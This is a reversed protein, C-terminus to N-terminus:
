QLAHELEPGRRPPFGSGPPSFFSQNFERRARREVARFSSAYDPDLQKQIEDLVLREFALTGYWLSRGPTMLRIFRTLERGPRQAEGETILEQMNANTLTWLAPLQSGFVPGLFTQAIGGGFRTQDSFIFDGFIGLGGGRSMGKLWAKKGEETTPDMPLPDRGKSIQSLQEGFTGMIATGIVLHAFYKAKEVPSINSLAARRLHTMALTIPFSKFLFTNRFLEGAFTGRPKGGTLLARTRQTVSPIAFETETLILGQLKNAADLRRQFLPGAEGISPDGVIDNIRLFEAGTEHDRWLPTSRILDWESPTIESSEFARRLPGPLEDFRKGINATVFGLYEMGFASRGWQTWPSLFSLRLVTDAIRRSWEPGVAEGMYRVQAVAVGLGNQNIFGLRAALQKDAASTPSLLKLHQAWVRSAPLGNLRATIDSFTRDAIASFFAGGLMASTLINRNAESIYAGTHNNVKDLGNSVAAYLDRIRPQGSAIRRAARAGKKGTEKLAERGQAEGVLRETFRITADPNPGLVRTLAIDRSMGSIHNLVTNFVDGDGFREHYALWSDADRFILFRSQARRSAISRGLGGPKVNILGDTVITDYVDKLVRRLGPGSFPRGTEIDVMQELDLLPMIFDIWDQDEVSNLASRNHSQPLGWDARKPITLGSANGTRRLHEFGADLGQAMEKAEASGSKEGFLERVVDRLAARRKERHGPVLVDLGAAKSEFKQFFDAMVAYAQSRISEGLIHVNLGGVRRTPDFDLLALAAEIPDEANLIRQRIEAQVKATQLKARKIRRTKHKLADATRMAAVESPNPSNQHKLQAEFEDFLRAAEDAKSKDVLGAQGKKSICNGATM